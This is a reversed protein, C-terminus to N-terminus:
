GKPSSGQAYCIDGAEILQQVNMFVRGQPEFARGGFEAVLAAASYFAAACEYFNGGYGLTYVVPNDLDISTLSAYHSRLESFDDKRFYVGTKRDRVVIPLFGSHSNLDDKSGLRAPLQQVRLAKEWADATPARNLALIVFLEMSM